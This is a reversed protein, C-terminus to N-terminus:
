EYTNGFHFPDEQSVPMSMMKEQLTKNQLLEHKMETSASRKQIQEAM